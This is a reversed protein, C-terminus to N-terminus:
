VPPFGLCTFPTAPLGSISLAATIASPGPIAEITTDPRQERVAEVLKYGPDSIAPTGADTILAVSLNNELAEVVQNVIKTETIADGRILKAHITGADFLSRLSRTDEAVIIDAKELTEKARPSFDGRNGIPTAVISLKGITKELNNKTM